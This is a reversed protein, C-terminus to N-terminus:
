ELDIAWMSGTDDKLMRIIKDYLQITLETEENLPFLINIYQFPYKQSFAQTNDFITNSFM